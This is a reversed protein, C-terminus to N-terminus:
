SRASGGGKWAVLNRKTWLSFPAPFLFSLFAAATQPDQDVRVGTEQLFVFVSHRKCNSIPDTEQRKRFQVRTRLEVHQRFIIQHQHASTARFLSTSAVFPLKYEFLHSGGCTLGSTHEHLFIKLVTRVNLTRCSSVSRLKM